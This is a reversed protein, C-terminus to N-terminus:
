LCWPPEEPFRHIVLQSKGHFARTGTLIEYLLAGLSLIDSRGDLEKGEVQDPSMYQFTGVVTGEQTVPSEAKTVADDRSNDAAGCAQGLWFGVAQRGHAHAHHKAAESRPACDGAIRETWRTRL